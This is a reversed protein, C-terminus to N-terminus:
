AGNVVSVTAPTMDEDVSRLGDLLADWGIRTGPPAVASLAVPLVDWVARTFQWDQDLPAADLEFTRAGPLAGHQFSALFAALAVSERFFVCPQVIRGGEARDRM